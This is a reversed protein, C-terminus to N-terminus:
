WSHTNHININYAALFCIYMWITYVAGSASAYCDFHVKHKQCWLSLSLLQIGHTLCERLMHFTFCITSPAPDILYCLNSALAWHLTHLLVPNWFLITDNWRTRYVTSVFICSYAMVPHREQIYLIYIYIYMLMSCVCAYRNSPKQFKLKIIGNSLHIFSGSSHM